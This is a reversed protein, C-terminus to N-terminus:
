SPKQIVKCKFLKGYINFQISVIVQINRGFQVSNAFTFCAFSRQRLCFILKIQAQFNSYQWQNLGCSKFNVKQM